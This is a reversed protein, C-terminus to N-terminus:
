MSREIIEIVDVAERVNSPLKDYHNPNIHKKINLFYLLKQIKSNLTNNLIKDKLVSNNVINELLEKSFHKGEAISIYRLREPISEEVKDNKPVICISNREHSYFMDFYKHKACREDLIKLAKAFKSQNGGFNEFLYRRCPPSNRYFAKFSINQSSSIDMIVIM